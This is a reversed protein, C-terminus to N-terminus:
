DIKECMVIRPGSRRKYNTIQQFVYVNKKKKNMRKELQIVAYERWRGKGVYFQVEIHGDQLHSM